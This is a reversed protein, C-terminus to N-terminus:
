IDYKSLFHWNNVYQVQIMSDGEVAISNNCAHSINESDQFSLTSGAFASDFVANELGSNEVYSRDCAANSDCLQSPITYLNSVSSSDIRLPTKCKLSAFLRAKSTSISHPQFRQLSSTNSDAM